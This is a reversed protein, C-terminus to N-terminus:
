ISDGQKTESKNCTWFRNIKEISFGAARYLKAGQSDANNSNIYAMSAGLAQL